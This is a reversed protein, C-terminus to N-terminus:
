QKKLTMSMNYTDHPFRHESKIVIRDRFVKVTPRFSYINIKQIFDAIEDPKAHCNDIVLRILWAFRWKGQGMRDRGQRVKARFVADSCCDEWGASYPSLSSTMSIDILGDTLKLVAPRSISLGYDNNCTMTMCKYGLERLTLIDEDHLDFDTDLLSEHLPRM